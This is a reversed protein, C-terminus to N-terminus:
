VRERWSARGIEIEVSGILGLRVGGTDLGITLGFEGSRLRLRSPDDVLSAALGVLDLGVKLGPGVFLDGLYPSPGGGVRLSGAGLGKGIETAIDGLDGDARGLADDPRVEVM